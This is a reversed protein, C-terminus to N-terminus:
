VGLEALSVCEIEHKALKRGKEVEYMKMGLENTAKAVLEGSPWWPIEDENLIRPGEPTMVGMGEAWFHLISGCRQCRQLVGEQEPDDPNTEMKREGAVHVMVPETWLAMKIVEATRSLEEHSDMVEKALERDPTKRDLFADLARRHRLYHAHLDSAMDDSLESWDFYPDFNQM